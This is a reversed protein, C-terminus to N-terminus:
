LVTNMCYINLCYLTNSSDHQFVLKNVVIDCREVRRRTNSNVFVCSDTCEHVISVPSVITAPTITKVHSTLELLPCDYNNTLPVGHMELLEFVQVLCFWSQGKAICLLLLGYKVQLYLIAYPIFSPHKIDTYNLSSVLTSDCKRARWRLLLHVRWYQYTKRASM